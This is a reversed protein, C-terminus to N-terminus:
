KGVKKMAIKHAESFTKGGRMLKRMESMHKPTHHASHKKLTDEQRKTLGKKKTATKGGSYNSGFVEKPKIKKSEAVRKPVEHQCEGNPCQKMKQAPKKKKKGGYM